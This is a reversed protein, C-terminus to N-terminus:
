IRLMLAYYPYINKQRSAEEMANYFFGSPLAFLKGKSFHFVARDSTPPM